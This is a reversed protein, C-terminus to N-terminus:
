FVGERKDTFAILSADRLLGRLVSRHYAMNAESCDEPQRIVVEVILDDQIPDDATRVIPIVTKVTTRYVNNQQKRTSMTLFQDYKRDTAHRKIWTGVQNNREVPEFTQLSTVGDDDTLPLDIMNPM